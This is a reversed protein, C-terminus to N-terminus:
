AVPAPRSENSVFIDEVAVRLLEAVSWAQAICGRPRHPADADLIESIQGLGATRLHEAFGEFWDQAQERAQQSHGHAKLYATLFPGMLWPWVTGQHYAGDRERVGGEYRPCYRSDRPSLTRLGAPTLLDREVVTLVPQVRDDNLIPYYLSAALVQNPRIAGDRDDGNIVDYLCGAAANWFKDNFSKKARTALEDAMTGAAADQFAEAFAEVIRLANYWLAQIEVPKGQRPTVVWEGVKADMWTLQVGDEGATLLGDADMRIGYRTGRVHWDLIDKLVPYLTERVLEVDGTYAAYARIAEFFWLTADVTNYEPTDGDDLFRNPLMGQDVCSAFELLIGKAVDFRGTALTLGPFAIMTDRGWDGFWHYGAIVSKFKGRDVIFQGAAATLTALLPQGEPASSRVSRRRRLEAERMAAAAAYSYKGTSAIITAKQSGEFRLCFPNHLDEHADLGREKEAEFEFGYYWNGAPQVKTANHAFYLRPLGDYPAVSTVDDEVLVAPKLSPNAHTTSHFDRFAILPRVELECVGTQSELAYEAVVTNEGQPMFITKTVRVGGAQFTWVPFPNLEFSELFDFGRPHIAGAYQNASLEFRQGDVVLTEELKSLLLLRGLPAKTAATLLGHYRRTNIGAVTSSSFGGIGNTEIWERETAARLDRCISADLKLSLTVTKM